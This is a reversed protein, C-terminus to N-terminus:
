PRLEVMRARVDAAWPSKPDLQLYRRWHERAKESHGISSYVDGLNYHADAYLPFVALARQFAAISQDQEDLDALVTGLNNWAEVYDQDLAVARRFCAQAEELRQSAYLVNGLNFQLIPDNPELKIAQEYAHVAGHYDAQNECELAEQFWQDATKADAEIALAREEVLAEFDLQLQGSPEALRGDHLRFLLRGNEELVSLQSLPSEMGPLWSQVRHLSERIKALPLGESILDCLVKASTVQNFDFFNLRHVTEAPEILGLRVWLRIRDYPVDLIRSLQAITYSQHVEATGTGLDLKELLSEEQIIQIDYGDANLQRARQLAQSPQGDATLPPGASGVVLFKTHRGPVSVHEGGFKDILEAFERQSMSAFRGALAVRAGDLPNTEAEAPASDDRIVNLM